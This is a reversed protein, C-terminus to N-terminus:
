FDAPAGLERLITILVGERNALVDSNWFRLVRFGDSRLYEDRTRDQLNEAHQGGRSRHGAKTRSVPFRGCLARAAGAQSVSDVLDDTEYHL